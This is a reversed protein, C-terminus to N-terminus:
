RGIRYGRQEIDFLEDESLKGKNMKAWEDKTVLFMEKKDARTKVLYDALVKEDSKIPESTTGTDPGAKSSVRPTIAKPTQPAATGSGSYIDNLRDTGPWAVDSPMQFSGGGGGVSGGASPGGSFLGAM